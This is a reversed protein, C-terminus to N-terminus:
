REKDEVEVRCKLVRRSVPLIVGLILHASWCLMLKCLVSRGYYDQWSLKLWGSFHGLHTASGLLCGWLSLSDVTHWLPQSWPLSKMWGGGVQWYDSSLDLLTFYKNGGLTDLIDDIQRLPYVDKKAIANLCCYHIHDRPEMRRQFESLQGEWPSTSPRIVGQQEMSKVMGAIVDRHVFPGRWFPQKIPAHDGTDVHHEVITTYGLESENLAHPVHCILKCLMSGQPKPVNKHMETAICTVARPTRTIVM